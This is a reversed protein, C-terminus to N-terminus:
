HSTLVIVRDIGAYDPRIEAVALGSVATALGAVAEAQGAGVELALFGGPLLYQSCDSLLRRYCALGDRGGDLALQPECHVEPALGPLQSTPIYPPNSLIADFRQEGLAQFLDSLSCTLRSSVGHRDANVAAIKLAAASIDVATGRAAPLNHLLSIILAGSGTGIDLICPEPSAGAASLRELAVMALIESDPRPILVAPDVAFDLGMFEKHGTIYAVPQRKARQQVAVRYRNLEEPELPQDFHVYLYMRDQGLIHSLLVEADLRPTDIGKESFYQKSWTILQEITWQQTM